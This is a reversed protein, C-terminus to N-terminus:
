PIPRPPTPWVVEGDFVTRVVPIEGIESAPVALPDRELVVLDARKGVEISGTIEDQGLLHASDLTVTRLATAADAIVETSGRRTLAREM